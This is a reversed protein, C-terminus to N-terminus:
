RLAGAAVEDPSRREDVITVLVPVPNEGQETQRRSEALLDVLSTAIPEELTAGVRKDLTTAIRELLPIIPSAAGSAAAAPTPVDPVLIGAAGSVAEAIGEAVDLVGGGRTAEEVQKEWGRRVAEGIDEGHQEFFTPDLEDRFRSRIEEFDVGALLTDALSDWWHDLDSLPGEEAPSKLKLLRQLLRAIQEAAKRIAALARQMGLALSEGMLQGASAVDVGNKKLLALIQRHIKRYQEPHQQLKEILDDLQRQLADRRIGRKVELRHEEEEQADELAQREAARQAEFAEREAAARRELDVRQQSFLAERLALDAAAIEAPDGGKMAEDLRRRAEAVAAALREDRFAAEQAAIAKETETQTGQTIKDFESLVADHVRQLQTLMKSTIRDFTAGVFNSLRSFADGMRGVLAEVTRRGAELAERIREKVKEPLDATGLLFGRVVGEGLPKGVKEETEKSPSRARAATQAAAVAQNVIDIAATVAGGVAGSIGSAIGAGMAAGVSRGGTRAAGTAAGSATVMATRLIPSLGPGINASTFGTVYAGGAQKGFPPMKGTQASFQADVKRKFEALDILALETQINQKAKRAWAGAPGPIHSFPEIVKLAAQLGLKVIADWMDRFFGVIKGVGVEVTRIVADFALFRALLSKFQGLKDSVFGPIKGLESAIQNAGVAIARGAFSIATLFIGGLRPGLFEAVGLVATELAGKFAPGLRALPGLLAGVIKVGLTALRTVPFVALGIALMEQWHRAWFGPDLLTAFAAVMAAALGPGIKSGLAEWDIASMVTDISAVLKKAIEGTVTVATLIGDSIAAGVASWDVSALRAAIGDAIGDAVASWDTASFAAAIRDVLGQTKVTGFHGGSFVGQVEGFLLTRLKAGLSSVASEVGEWIITLKARIGKAAMVREVAAQIRPTFDVLRQLGRTALEFFPAMIAGSIQGFTDKVTSLLGALSHSQKDMLGRFRELGKGTELAKMLAELEQRGLKGTQALQAVAQKSRGTAAALLDFVPIGADRLQNLDEATIRGAATMQQLAVTARKIGEAGTGMGATVDGLTTMIPIIKQTEIGISVLSSASRVLDPFEFPTKAAFAQLQDLFARAKQGSGLMTTFAIEAQQRMM